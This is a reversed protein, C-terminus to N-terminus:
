LTDDTQATIELFARGPPVEKIGTIAFTQGDHDLRDLTCIDRSFATDRIVFRAVLRSVIIGGLMKEQDSVDRRRAYIPGGHPQWDMVHSYGNDETGVDRLIQIRRNLHSANLVM